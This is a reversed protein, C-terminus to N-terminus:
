GTWKSHEDCTLDGTFDESCKQLQMKLIPLRVVFGFSLMILLSITVVGCLFVLPVSVSQYVFVYIDCM